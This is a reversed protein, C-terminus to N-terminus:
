QCSSPDPAPPLVSGNGSLKSGNIGKLAGAAALLVDRDAAASYVVVTTRPTYLELRMGAERFAAPVDSVTLVEDAPRSYSFANRECANWSQIQLPSMCAQGGESECTGYLFSVDDRRVPEGPYRLADVRQVALLPFGAVSRGAWFVPFKHFQEAREVSFNGRPSLTVGDAEGRAVFTAGGALVVALTALTPLLIAKRV